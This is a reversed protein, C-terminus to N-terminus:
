TIRFVEDGERCRDPVTIGVSAGPGAESLSEHEMQISDVIHEFDTTHGHVRIKDGVKLQARLAVGVVGIRAFYHDVRGILEEAM